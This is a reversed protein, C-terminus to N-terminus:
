NKILKSNLFNLVSKQFYAQSWLPTLTHDTNALNEIVLATRNKLKRVNAGLESGIVDLAIDNESFIFMLQVGRKEMAQFNKLVATPKGLRTLKRMRSAVREALKKGIRPLDIDGQFARKWTKIQWFAKLYFDTAHISEKIKLDLSDGPNWQFTPLNLIVLGKVRMDMAAAHYAFYAGSCLGALMFHTHSTTRTVFDMARQIDNIGATAYAENETGEPTPRSYGLGSRDFRLVTTGQAALTRALNVYLRHNGVRHSTGTNSLIVAIAQKQPAASRHAHTLIGTLGDFSVLEEDVHVSGVAVSALRQFISAARTTPDTPSSTMAHGFNASFWAVIEDWLLEPVQTNHADSTMMAAYGGQNSLTVIHGATELATACKGEQGKMDDRAGMFCPICSPLPLKQLDLASLAAQTAHSFPYGTIEEATVVHTPNTPPASSPSTVAAALPSMRALAVLERVYGRGSVVPAVCALAAVGEQAAVSAALLAGLRVGFLAVEAVGSKAKLAQIAQVISQQWTPVTATDAEAFDGSDGCGAYDFFCVPFGAEALQIALKKYARHSVLYEHGFPPCLVVGCRRAPLSPAHYWGFLPCDRHGFWFAEPAAAM